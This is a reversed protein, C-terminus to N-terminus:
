RTYVAYPLGYNPGQMLFPDKIRIRAMTGVKMTWAGDAEQHAASTVDKVAGDPNVTVYLVIKEVGAQASLDFDAQRQYGNEEFVRDMGALPNDADGAEPNIWHDLGLAAGFANVKDTAPGVVEFNEGLRPFAQRLQETLLAQREKAYAAKPAAKHVPPPAPPVFPRIPDAATAAGALVAAALVAASKRILIATM